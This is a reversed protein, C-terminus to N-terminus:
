NSEALSQAASESFRTKEDASLDRQLVRSTAFVVMGAVEQKVDALMKKHELDMAERAKQVISEAKAVADQSQKEMLAKANERAEQVIATADDTALQIKKASEKEAEALRAKMEEAYQLGDAIKANREEMTAMVPKFAFRYLLFAVVCFNVVQAFFFKWDLGFTGAFTDGVVEDHSIAADIGSAALLLLADFM